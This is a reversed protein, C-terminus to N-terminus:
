RPIVFRRFTLSVPLDCSPRAPMTLTLIFSFKVLGDATEQRTYERFRHSGVSNTFTSTKRDFNLAGTRTTAGRDLVLVAAGDLKVFPIPPNPSNQQIQVALGSFVLNPRSGVVPIEFYTLSENFSVMTCDVNATSRAFTQAAFGVPHPLTVNAASAGSAALMLVALSLVLRM